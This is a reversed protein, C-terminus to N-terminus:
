PVKKGIIMCQLIFLISPSNVKGPFLSYAKLNSLDLSIVTANQDTCQLSCNSVDLPDETNNVIFGSYVNRM